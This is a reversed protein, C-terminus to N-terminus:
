HRRQNRKTFGKMEMRKKIELDVEDDIEMYQSYTSDKGHEFGGILDNFKWIENSTRKEGKNFLVM